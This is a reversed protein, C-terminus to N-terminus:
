GIVFLRILRRRQCLVVAGFALAGAIWTSPEPVSSLTVDIGGNSMDYSFVGTWGPNTVTWSTVTPNSTVGTIIDEYIGATPNIFTFKQTSYFSSAGAGTLALTSHTNGSGLALEIISGTTQTLSGNITLTQGTSGTGGELIAGSTNMAVNGGITGIGGLVTGANTVTTTGTASVENGNIFLTGGSVNTAGTYSNTGSLIYTGGTVALKGKHSGNSAAETINGSITVAGTGTGGLTLTKSDDLLIANAISESSSSIQTIFPNTGTFELQQGGLFFAGGGSSFTISNLLMPNAIDNNLPTGATGTRTTGAFTLATASSSTPATGGWNNGDSWNNTTGGGNWTPDAPSRKPKAKGLKPGDIAFMPGPETSVIQAHTTAASAVFFAFASTLIVFRRRMIM